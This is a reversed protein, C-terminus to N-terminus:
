CSQIGKEINAAWKKSWDRLRKAYEKEIDAREQILKMLESCQQMGDETRRVTRKFGDIEWFCENAISIENSGNTAMKQQV